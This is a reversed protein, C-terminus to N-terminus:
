FNSYREFTGRETHRLNLLQLACRVTRAILCFVFLFNRLGLFPLTYKKRSVLLYIKGANGPFIFNHSVLDHKAANYVTLTYIDAANM